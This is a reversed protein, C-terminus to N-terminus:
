DDETLLSRQDPNDPSDPAFYLQGTRKVGFSMERSRMVPVKSKFEVESRVSELERDEDMVPAFTFEITLKRKTKDAPRDQMDKVLRDLHKQFAKAVVGHDLVNLSALTLQVIEPM